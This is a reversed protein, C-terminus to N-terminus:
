AEQTISLLLILDLTVILIAANAARSFQQWIKLMKTKYVKFRRRSLDM